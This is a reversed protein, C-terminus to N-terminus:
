DGEGALLPEIHTDMFNIIEEHTFDGSRLANVLTIYQRTQDDRQNKYVKVMELATAVVAHVQQNNQYLLRSEELITALARQTKVQVEPNDIHTNLIFFVAFCLDNIQQHAPQNDAHLTHLINEIDMVALDRHGEDALDLQESFINLQSDSM